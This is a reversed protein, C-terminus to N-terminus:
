ALEVFDVQFALRPRDSRAGVGGAEPLPFSVARSSCRLQSNLPAPIVHVIRIGSPLLKGSGQCTEARIVTTHLAQVISSAPFWSVLFCDLM